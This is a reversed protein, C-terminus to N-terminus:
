KYKKKAFNRIRQAQKNPVYGVFKYKTKHGFDLSKGNVDTEYYQNKVGSPYKLQKFKETRIYGKEIANVKKYEYLHTLQIARYKGSSKDKYVAYTHIGNPKYDKRNNSYM